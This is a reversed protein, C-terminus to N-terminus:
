AENLQFWPPVIDFEVKIPKKRSLWETYKSNLYRQYSAAVGDYGKFEDPMCMPPDIWGNRLINKPLVHRLTRALERSKHWVKRRQYNNVVLCSLLSALWHYHSNSQRVWVACPHNKHSIKYLGDIAHDGDLVHHATSLLQCYEVIMKNQHVHCHDLAAM